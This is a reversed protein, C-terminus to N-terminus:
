RSSSNIYKDLLSFFKKENIPKSIYDTFGDKLLEDRESHLAKATVAFIPLKIGGDMVRIKKMAEVGDMVPMMIDMIILDPKFVGFKKVAELGNEAFKLEYDKQLLLKFLFINAKEDDVVLIRKKNM